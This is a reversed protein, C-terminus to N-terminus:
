TRGVSSCFMESGNQMMQTNLHQWFLGLLFMLIEATSMSACAHCPFLVFNRIFSLLITLQSAELPEIHYM